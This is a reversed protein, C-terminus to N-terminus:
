LNAKGEIGVAIEKKKNHGLENVLLALSHV